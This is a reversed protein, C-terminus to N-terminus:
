TIVSQNGSVPLTTALWSAAVAKPMEDPRLGQMWDTHVWESTLPPHITLTGAFDSDLERQLARLSQRAQTLSDQSYELGIVQVPREPLQIHNIGTQTVDFHPSIGVILFATPM